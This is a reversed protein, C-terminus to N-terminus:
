EELLKKLLVARPYKINIENLFMDKNLELNFDDIKNFYESFNNLIILYEEVSEIIIKYPIYWDATIVMEESYRNFTILDPMVKLRQLRDKINNIYNWRFDPQIEILLENMYNNINFSIRSIQNGVIYEEVLELDSKTINFKEKLDKLKSHNENKM